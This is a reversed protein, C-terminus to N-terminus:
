PSRWIYVPCHASRVVREAVVGLFFQQFDRDGQAPIVILEIDKEKAYDVIKKSPDGFLVEFNVQQYQPTNFQKYFTAEVKQKRTQNNLTEWVVGPELPSLSPM